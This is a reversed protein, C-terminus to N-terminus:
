ADKQLAGLVDKDSQRKSERAMCCESGKYRLSRSWCLCCDLGFFYCKHNRYHRTRECENNGNLANVNKLVCGCWHQVNEVRPAPGVIFWHTAKYGEPVDSIGNDTKIRHIPSRSSYKNITIHPKNICVCSVILIQGCPPMQEDFSIWRNYLNKNM